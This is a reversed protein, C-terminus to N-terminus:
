HVINDLHKFFTFIVHFGAMNVALHSNTMNTLSSINAVDRCTKLLPIEDTNFSLIDIIHSNPTSGPDFYFKVRVM